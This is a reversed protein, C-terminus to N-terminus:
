EEENLRRAIIEKVIFNRKEDESAKYNLANSLKVMKKQIEKMLSLGRLLNSFIEKTPMCFAPTFDTSPINIQKNMFDTMFGSIKKFFEWEVKTVETTTTKAKVSKVNSKEVKLTQSSNSFEINAM